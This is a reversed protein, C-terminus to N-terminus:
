SNKLSFPFDNDLCLMIFFLIFLYKWVQHDFSSLPKILSNRLAFQHFNFSIILVFVAHPLLCTLAHALAHRGCVLKGTAQASEPVPKPGRGSTASLRDGLGGLGGGARNGERQQTHPLWM